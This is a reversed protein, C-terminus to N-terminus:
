ELLAHVSITEMCRVWARARPQVVPQLASLAGTRHLGIVSLPLSPPHLSLFPPPFLLPSLAGEKPSVTQAVKASFGSEYYSRHEAGPSHAGNREWRTAAPNRELARSIKLWEVPLPLLRPTLRNKGGEEEEVHACFRLRVQSPFLPSFPPPSGRSAHQQEGSPQTCEGSQSCFFAPSSASHTLPPSFFLTFLLLLSSTHTFCPSSPNREEEAVRCASM